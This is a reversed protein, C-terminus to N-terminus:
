VIKIRKGLKIFYVCFGLFLMLKWFTRVSYTHMGITVYIFVFFILLVAPSIKHKLLFEINRLLYFYLSCFLLFYVIGFQYSESLASMPVNLAWKYKLLDRITAFGDIFSFFPSFSLIQYRFAFSPDHLLTNAVNMAGEFVNIGMSMLTYTLGMRNSVTLYDFTHLLGHHLLNRGVLVKQMILLLVIFWIFAAIPKQKLILVIIIIAVYFAAWRSNGALLFIFPYLAVILPLVASSKRGSLWLFCSLGIFTVGVYRFLTHYIAGLPNLLGISSPEKISLYDTNSLLVSKDIM